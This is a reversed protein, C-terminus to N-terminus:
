SGRMYGPQLKITAIFFIQSALFMMYLIPVWGGSYIYPFVFAMNAFFTGWVMLVCAVLTKNSKPVKQM